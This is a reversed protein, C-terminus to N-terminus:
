ATELTPLQHEGNTQDQAVAPDGTDDVDSSPERNADDDTHHGLQGSLGVQVARATDPRTSWAPGPPVERFEYTACGNMPDDERGSVRARRRFTPRTLTPEKSELWVIENLKLDPNVSRDFTIKGGWFSRAEIKVITRSADVGDRRQSVANASMSRAM